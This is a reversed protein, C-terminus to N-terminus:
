SQTTDHCQTECAQRFSYKGERNLGEAKVRLPASVNFVIPFVLYDWDVGKEEVHKVLLDAARRYGEIYGYAPNDSFNLCATQRGDPGGFIGRGKKFDDSM